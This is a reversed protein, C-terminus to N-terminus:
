GYPRKTPESAFMYFDECPDVTDDINQLIESALLICERSLCTKNKPDPHATPTPQFVTTTATVTATKRDGSAVHTHTPAPQQRAKKLQNATGAFLGIFVAALLLFLIAAVALLREIKTLARSRNSYDEEHEAHADTTPDLLPATEITLFPYTARDANTM